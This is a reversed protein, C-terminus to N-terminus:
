NNKGTFAMEMQEAKRAKTPSEMSAAANGATAAQALGQNEKDGKRAARLAAADRVAAAAVQGCNRFTLGAMSRGVTETSLSLFM